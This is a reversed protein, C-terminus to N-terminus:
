NDDPRKRAGHLVRLIELRGDKVRYILIYSPYDPVAFERTGNVRGAKGIHTHESLLTKVTNIIELVVAVAAAPNDNGIYKEIHEFDREAPKTWFIQM